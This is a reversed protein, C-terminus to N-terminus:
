ICRRNILKGASAPLPLTSPWQRQLFLQPLLQLHTVAFGTTLPGWISRVVEISYVGAQTMLNEELM